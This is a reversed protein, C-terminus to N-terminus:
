HNDRHRPDQHHSSQVDVMPFDAWTWLKETLSSLAEFGRSVTLLPPPPVDQVEDMSQLSRSPVKTKTYEAQSLHSYPDPQLNPSILLSFSLLLVLICTGKQTTKSSSGSLLDQARNLQELLAHNTDELQQIKRQLELNHASCASMRGELCDVYERKKKRSEQASRKNRIKRRIKKLVKEEFKSLPLKSPLNVGEKALLTKEDEDLQLEPLSHQPIQQAKQGLNSLLLDKVTLTQSSLLASSQNTKLYYSIGFQEQLNGPEWSHDISVTKESAPLHNGPPQPIAPADFTQLPTCCSPHPSETPDILPDDNIGSDTTCPSWLPSAPVSSSDSGGLLSDLFDDTSSREPSPTDHFTITWSQNSHYGTTEDTNRLLLDMFDLGTHVKETKLTM